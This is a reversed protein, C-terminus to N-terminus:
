AIRGETAGVLGGAGFEKVAARVMEGVRHLTRRHGPASPESRSRNPNLHELLLRLEADSARRLAVDLAHDVNEGSINRLAFELVDGFPDASIPPFAAELKKLRNNLQRV